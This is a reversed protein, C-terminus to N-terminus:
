SCAEARRLKAAIADELVMVIDALAADALTPMTTRRGRYIPFLGM